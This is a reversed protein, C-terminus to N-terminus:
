SGQDAIGDQRLCLRRRVDSEEAHALDHQVGAAEVPRRTGALGSCAVSADDERWSVVVAGQRASGLEAMKTFVLQVANQVRRDPDLEVKGQRTWRFGVPLRFQLEGRRAKQRIAELSRQRLLNLEFESM